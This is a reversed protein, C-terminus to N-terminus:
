PAQFRSRVSAREGESLWAMWAFLCSALATSTFTLAWRLWPSLTPSFRHVAWATGVAITATAILCSWARLAYRLYDDEMVACADRLVFHYCALLDGLLLGIPVCYLGFRAVTLAAFGVAIISSALYSASLRRHRNSSAPILSAALWPIAFLGHMLLLRLLVVDPVLQGHTWITILSAGEFWLTAAVAACGAGSVVLLLQHALRLRAVDGKSELLTFETWTATSLLAFAQRCLNALTRTTVYLAVAISGLTWGILLTMGQLTIAQALLMGGFLFSPHLFSLALDKRAHSLGFRLAPFRRHVDFLVIGISLALPLLQSAALTVPTPHILLAAVAALLTGARQAHVRWESRALDGTTRYIASIFNTPLAWLVQAALLTVTASVAWTSMHDLRLWAKLPVVLTTALVLLTGVSAVAIYLALGTHQIERYANFNKAQFTQTLKNVLYTQMGMDLSYLYAVSSSLILWEGYAASTWVHLFLPVLLFNSLITVGQGFLVATLAKRIRRIM